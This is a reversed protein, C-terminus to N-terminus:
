KSEILQELNPKVKNYIRKRYETYTESSKYELDGIECNIIELDKTLYYNYPYGMAHKFGQIVISSDCNRDETTIISIGEYYDNKRKEYEEVGDCLLIIFEIEGEFEEALQNIVPIETRYINSHTSSVQIFIPRDLASLDIPKKNSDKFTINDIITGRLISPITDHILSNGIISNKDSEFAKSAKIKTTEILEFISDISPNSITETKLSTNNDDIEQKDGATNKCCYIFPILFLLLTIKFYKMKIIELQLCRFNLKCILFCAGYKMHMLTLTIIKIIALNKFLRKEWWVEAEM